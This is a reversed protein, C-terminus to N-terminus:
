RLHMGARQAKKIISCAPEAPLGTDRQFKEVDADALEQRKYYGGRHIQEALGKYGASKLFKVLQESPKDAAMESYWTVLGRLDCNFSILTSFM